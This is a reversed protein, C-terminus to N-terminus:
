FFIILNHRFDTSVYLLMKSFIQHHKKTFLLAINNNIIYLYDTHFYRYPSRKIAKKLANLLPTEDIIKTAHQSTTGEGVAVMIGDVYLEYNAMGLLFIYTIKISTIIISREYIHM